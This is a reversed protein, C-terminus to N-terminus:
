LTSHPNWSLCRYGRFGQLFSWLDAFFYFTESPRGLKTGAMGFISMRDRERAKMLEMRLDKLKPRHGGKTNMGLQM